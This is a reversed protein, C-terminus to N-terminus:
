TCHPPDRGNNFLPHPSEFHITKDVFFRVESQRFVENLSTVHAACHSIDSLDQFFFIQTQSHKHEKKPSKDGGLFPHAHSVVLGNPLMHTHRNTISNQLVIFYAPLMVFVLYRMINKKTKM